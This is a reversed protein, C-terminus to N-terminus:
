ILDVMGGLVGMVANLGVGMPAVSRCFGGMKDVMGSDIGLLTSTHQKVQPPLVLGPINKSAEIVALGEFASKAVTTPRREAQMAGTM